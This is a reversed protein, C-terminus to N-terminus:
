DDKKEEAGANESSEETPQAEVAEAEGNQKKTVNIFLDELTREEKTIGFIKVDADALEKVVETVDKETGIAVKGNGLIEAKGYLAACVDRAKVVDDTTLVIRGSQEDILNDKTYSGVVKGNSVVVYRDCMIQVESLLHSSVMVAVDYEHALRRLIDRMEKIGAPDLGNTPEDLVLLKPSGILAQAIGLRQKMGLSYKVVLDDKRQELGVLRMLDTARKKYFDKKSLNDPNKTPDYPELSYFYVLNNLGTMDKYLDPNEVICGVNALAKEREKEVDFGCVTVSGSQAKALGTIIKIITSKGAGNPGILGVVEGGDVCFSVDDAAKIVKKGRTKYTKCVNKVELIAMIRGRKRM